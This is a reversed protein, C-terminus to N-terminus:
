TIELELKENQSFPNEFIHLGFSVLEHLLYIVKLKPGAKFGLLDKYFNM